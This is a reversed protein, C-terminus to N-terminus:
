CRRWFLLHKGSTELCSPMCSVPKVHVVIASVMQELLVGGPLSTTDLPRSKRVVGLAFEQGIFERSCSSDNETCQRDSLEDSVARKLEPKKNRSQDDIDPYQDDPQQPFIPVNQKKM